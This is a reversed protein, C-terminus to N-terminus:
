VMIRRGRLLRGELLGKQVVGQIYGRIYWTGTEEDEGPLHDVELGM